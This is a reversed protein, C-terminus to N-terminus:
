AVSAVFNETVFRLASVRRLEIQPTPRRGDKEYITLLGTISVHRGHLDSQSLFKRRLETGARGFVVITFAGRRFDGFNIFSIKRRTVEITRYSTVTGVVTVENGQNAILRDRESALLIPPVSVAQRNGSAASSFHTSTRVTEGALVQPVASFRTHCADILVRTRKTLGTQRMLRAFLVSGRPDAFDTDTFILNDGTHFENWLEPAEALATLSVDIVHASFLDLTADYSSGRDPHQYNRHGYEAAGLPRLNPVFMGDYDVLRIDGKTDVLINGHQLDGHAVGMGKMAIVVQWLRQRLAMLNEPSGLNDEVWDSMPLGDVWEMRVIPFVVGNVRIGQARYDVNALFELNPNVQIFRSIESYREQLHNGPKHFCRVAYRSGSVTIDFTLAFGGSAVAPMGLPTLRPTGRRLDSDCFAVQPLQVAHQYDLLAPLRM